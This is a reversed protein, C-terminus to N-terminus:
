NEKTKNDSSSQLASLKKFDTESAILGAIILVAGVGMTLTMPERLALSLLVAVIPDIYSFSAVTVAPLDKISSFFLLYAVGTHLLCVTILLLVTSTEGNTFSRSEFLLTYPLVTLGAVGLQVLTVDYPSIDTLRKTLLTVTAYLLAAGLALAIGIVDRRGINGGPVGSLFLMGVIAIAVSIIKQTGIKERNILLTAIIVFVPAMYYCLTSVAITTYSYSEFLLIWNAGIAAGSLILILLNKKIASLSPRKKMALLATAIFMAGVIGRICAIFGREADIGRVCVGITGFIVMSLILKILPLSDKM